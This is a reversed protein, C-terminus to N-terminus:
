WHGGREFEAVDNLFEDAAGPRWRDDGTYLQAFLLRWVDHLGHELFRFGAHRLVYDHVDNTRDAWLGGYQCLLDHVEGRHEGALTVIQNKLADLQAARRAEQQDPRHSFSATSRWRTPSAM